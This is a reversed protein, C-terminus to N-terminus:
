PVNQALSERFIFACPEVLIDSKYACCVAIYRITVALRRRVAM